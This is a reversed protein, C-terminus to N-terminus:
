LKIDFGEVTFAEKYKNYISPETAESTVPVDETEVDAKEIAEDVVEQTNEEAEVETALGLKASYKKMIAKGMELLDDEKMEAMLAKVSAYPLKEGDPGIPAGIQDLDETSAEVEKKEKSNLLVSMKKSYDTYGEEGLDKIDSAIVEREEDTLDYKEDLSSMRDNFQEQKQRKAVEAEMQEIASKASELEEKMKDHEGKLSDHDEKAASLADEVERKEATYQESAKELESEIFDSIVSASVEKLSEDTIDKINKIQMTSDKNENVVKKVAQSITKENNLNEQAEPESIQKTVPNEESNSSKEEEKIDIDTTNNKVIVGKVDAAPTETLGIGLPVVNKGVVKRFIERGDDTMGTGGYPKMFERLEEISDKDSIIEANELNKEDKDVLALVYRDFGLEWSASIRLYHESSPDGAEEIKDSILSDVVKWVGGGLTVNFPGEMNQVDELTLPRDTGFESFGATLITGVVHHRNHEVNIPKNKFHEFIEISTKTDVVDGNKNVRNAVFSNFAIPLLDIDKEVDIDPLFRKIKQLSAMALYKDKEESVAPKIPSSFQTKYKFKM